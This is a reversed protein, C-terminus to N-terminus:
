TPSPPNTMAVSLDWLRRAADDDRAAPTPEAPRSKRFYVGSTAAVEPATALYISTAAGAEPSIAMVNALQRFAWFGLGEGNTFNTRVFGPHLCNATVGSGSEKLRRALERTFLINALKSQGYAKWAGYSRKGEVDAFDIGRVMRHADSAVSVVRAGHTADLRDRLLDTLLFYALHNLAWTQEIGDVSARRPSIMAGANNLLVDLRPYTAKVEAALRCVEAQSSLDAVFTDVASGAVERGIRAATAACRAPDRGVVGVRFGKRALELAAVAGIGATAGTILVTKRDAPTPDSM